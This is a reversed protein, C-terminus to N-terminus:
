GGTVETLRRLVADIGAIEYAARQAGAGGGSRVLQQLSALEEACGLEAAWGAVRGLADDLLETV